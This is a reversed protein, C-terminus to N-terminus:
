AFANENQVEKAKREKIEREVEAVEEKTLLAGEQMLARSMMENEIKTTKKKEEFIRKFAKLDMGLEKYNYELVLVGGYTLTAIPTEKYTDESPPMLFQIGFPTHLLDDVWIDLFDTIIHVKGPRRPPIAFEEM